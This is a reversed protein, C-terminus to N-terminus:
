IKSKLEDLELKIDDLKEENKKEVENITEEM